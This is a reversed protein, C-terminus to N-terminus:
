GPHFFFDFIRGLFGFWGQYDGFDFKQRVIPAYFIDDIMQVVPDVVIEEVPLGTEPDIPLGTEPDIPFGTEPDIQPENTGEVLEPNTEGDVLETDTEKEIPLGTEPDLLVEGEGEGDAGEVIEGEPTKEGEITGEIPEPVAEPDVVAADEPVQTSEGTADHAAKETFYMDEVPKAAEGNETDAKQETGEVVEPVTTPEDEGSAEVLEADTKSEGDSKSEGDESVNVDAGQEPANSTEQETTQDVDAAPEEPPAQPQNDVAEPTTSEATEQSPEVVEESHDTEPKATAEAASNIVDEAFVTYGSSGLTSLTMLFVLTLALVRRWPRTGYKSM